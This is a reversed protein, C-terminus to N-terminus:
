VKVIMKGTNEGDFLGSLAKPLKEFGQIITEKYKIKGDKVWSGMESIMEPMRDNYDRALIGQITIRKYLVKHLFRPGMEPKDLAHNYQSIQGCVLIRAGVNVVDIVADTIVGGVNDYYIDVGEPCATKLAKVMSEQTKNEKYNITADVDLEQELFNMKEQSGAIGIVRCGKLKAIQVVTSGVAGAAGSVVVTEGTKIKGAEIIGFYAVRAPMGLIGLSTSVTAIKTDLLRVETDKVIAYQQWGTYCNVWDGIKLTDSNSAIIEGAMGSGQVVGLPHPVEWSNLASQQIRMYPDVSIYKAKVVIEGKKM